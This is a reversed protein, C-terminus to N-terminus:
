LLEIGILAQYEGKKTLSKEYIGIIVNKNIKEQEDTIVKVYEPRIGILMGNQKGLSSFPILKLKSIYKEQIDCPINKFDGGMIEKLNNLIEKPMCSYLLIHEVVIVPVNTIPEKLMNGTDIIAKTKIKKQNILIEIECFMDKKSIKNKIIAFAGIIICFAVVAGLMVTKLTYTGLFLGNKMLINQPKIIYILAFAAGGFVFSVLYFLLLDKCMKKINQPNFAIYIILVSLIIKLIISSYVKIIGMYAIISYGAGLLSALILRIHNVKIKLVVATTFLIIYNMILNEILVIDIYITM